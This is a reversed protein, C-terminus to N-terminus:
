LLVDGPLENAINDNEAETLEYLGAINELDTPHENLRKMVNEKVNDAKSFRSRVYDGGESIWYASSGVALSSIEDLTTKIMHLGTAIESSKAKLEEPTVLLEFNTDAM